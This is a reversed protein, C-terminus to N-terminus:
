QWTKKPEELRYCNRLSERNKMVKVAQPTRPWINQLSDGLQTKNLKRKKILSLNYTKPFIVVSTFYWTMLDYWPYMNNICSIVTSTLRARRASATHTLSRWLVKEEWSGMSYERSPLRMCLWGKLLLSDYQMEKLASNDVYIIQHLSNKYDLFFKIKHM